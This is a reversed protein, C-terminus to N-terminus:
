AMPDTHAIVWRRGERMLEAEAPEVEIGRDEATPNVVAITLAKGDETLAAAADM